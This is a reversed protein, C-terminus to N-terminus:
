WFGDSVGKENGLLKPERVYSIYKYSIGNVTYNINM